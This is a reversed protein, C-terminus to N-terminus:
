CEDKSGRSPFSESVRIRELLIAKCSLRHFRDRRHGTRGQTLGSAKRVNHTRRVDNLLEIKAALAHDVGELSIIEGHGHSTQVSLDNSTEQGTTSTVKEMDNTGM